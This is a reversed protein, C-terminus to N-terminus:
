KKIIGNYFEINKRLLVAIDFRRLIDNRAAIGMTIAEEKHTLMHIIKDAIDIPNHPDCLAATEKDSIMEFGPGIASGVFQKGMSLVELWALPMAEMHSPYVCIESQEIYNSIETNPVPGIVEVSDKIEATIYKKLYNIYSTGDPFFWDRGVIKLAVDPIKSKVILLAQVLQRVGKKECVSGVFLISNPKAKSYDVQKFKETDVPNYIVVVKREEINLEKLTIQSVYESVAALYDAKKFSWNELWVKKRERPRNEFLTFFQHGGHMRIVYQIGVIKYILALGSENSEIIDIASKGHVEKIKRNIAIANLVVRILKLDHRRTRFVAVGLDDENEERGVNNTGIVSVNHGEKVLERALTQVFTGIGGHPVNVKPYENTLFCIHM